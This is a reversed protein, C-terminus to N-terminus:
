NLYNLAKEWREALDKPIEHGMDPIITFEYPFDTEDFIQVMEKQRPLFYDKEGGVFVAKLGKEKAHKVKEGDFETPKGPCVGMVGKIPIIQNIAMHLAATGGASMGSIFVRTTDVSYKQIIEDYCGKLEEQTRSDSARWGYTNYDFYLYSQVYALIYNERIKETPQWRNKAMELTSGGGHLIIFLPYEKKDDYNTPLGVEYIMKSKEIAAQRLEMDRDVFKQFNEFKTYPKYKPIQPHILYFYGKQHGYEWIELNKEYQETKEYLYIFEKTLDFQHGPFKEWVTQSLELAEEYKNERELQNVAEQFDSYSTFETSHGSTVIGILIFSM